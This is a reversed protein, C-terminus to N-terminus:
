LKSWIAIWDLQVNGAVSNAPVTGDLATETQLVLHMPTNPIRSTSTGITTGDLIFRVSSPGWEIIATHWSPYTASTTYGDQDGGSTGNQRHMYAEITGNLNGEPFDIEGDRPWTESDPWLLWATKYGVLPDARFRMAYRGYLQGNPIGPLKPVPASVMHVGNETHLYMNLLGNQQSIVKSPYYTGNRSTDKWGDPYAGWKASVAGPFSGVPVNATFDDTFIQKWGPLDGIPMPQGSPNTVPAAFRVGAGGSAQSDAQSAAPGSLAGREPEASIYPTAAQSVFRAALGVISCCLIVLIITIHKSRIYKRRQM